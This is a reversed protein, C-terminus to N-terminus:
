SGCTNCTCKTYKTLMHVLAGDCVGYECINVYDEFIMGGRVLTQQGWHTGEEKEIMQKFEKTNVGSDDLTFVFRKGMMNQVIVKM